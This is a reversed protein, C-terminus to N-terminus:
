SQMIGRGRLSHTNNIVRIKRGGRIDGGAVKRAFTFALADAEDPSNIGRKKLAEKSELLIRGHFRESSTTSNLCTLESRIGGNIYGTELWDRMDGWMEARKNAYIHPKNPTSANKIEIVKRKFGMQNLRDVVGGGVGDGDIFCKTINYKVIDSAILDALVMIDRIQYKKSRITRADRGQRFAFVSNDAGHRAVDVGMLLPENNKNGHVMERTYADEALEHNIFSFDGTLPFLGRVEVRTVDHDEGNQDVIRHYTKKDIGDVTRSDINTNTWYKKNAHFAEFFSGTNKRGNSILIWIRLPSLDTFFGETVNYISDDIGSAEDFSLLLGVQSHVGAFADPKDKSWNQAECYYYGSDIQLQTRLMDKFDKNPKISLATKDYWHGNIAMGHWKGIEAMTRTRLQTETNATVIATAGLWCSLVWYNVMALFASKGIGRGSCISMYLVNLEDGNLEADRNARVYNRIKILEILQWDRPADFKELPTGVKRWPFAFFVFGVPDYKFSLVRTFLEQEANNSV